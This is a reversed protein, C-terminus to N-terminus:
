GRRSALTQGPEGTLPRTSPGPLSIAPLGMMHRLALFVEVSPKATGNEIHCLQQATIGLGKVAQTRVLDNKERWQAIQERFAKMETQVYISNPISMLM